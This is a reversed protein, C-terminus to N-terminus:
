SCLWATIVPIARRRTSRSRARHVRGGRLASRHEATGAPRALTYPLGALAATSPTSMIRRSSTSRTSAALRPETQTQMYLHVGRTGLYRAEFTYNQAFVHQVGFNWQISYPQKILSPIYNSTAARAEEPTFHRAPRAARDSGGNKLFNPSGIAPQGTARRRGADHFAAAAAGAPGPQRLSRRVGHRLRRPHVHQREQGPSYAIGIRPAWNNKQPQPERSNWCAPFARSRISADAPAHTYPVTTFEYRVGLNLTFNPRMRWQDQAYSYTSSRTATIFPTAPAANVPSTRRSTTLYDQLTSYEYDGRSRQTFTQPSISKRFDTGFKFTHNGNVWTVNDTGQYLNQITSKRRTRTRVSNCAASITSRSTRSCTM